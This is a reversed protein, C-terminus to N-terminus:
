VLFEVVYEVGIIKRVFIGFLGFFFVNICIWGLFMSDDRREFEVM